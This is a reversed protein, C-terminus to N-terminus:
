KTKELGADFRSLRIRLQAREFPSWMEQISIVQETERLLKVIEDLARKDRQLRIKGRRVMTGFVLLWSLAIPLGVALWSVNSYKLVLYLLVGALIFFSSGLATNVFDLRFESRDVREQLSEAAVLLKEVREQIASKADDNLPPMSVAAASPVIESSATDPRVSDHAAEAPAAAGVPRESAVTIEWSNCSGVRMSTEQM